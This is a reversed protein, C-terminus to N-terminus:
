EQSKPPEGLPYRRIKGSPTRELEHVIVLERPAEFRPLSAAVLDRLGELSPPDSPDAPVVFAVVRAGWEPDPRAAVAVDAVKPHRRLVAEVARPPVKEGGSIIVDDLRGDVHLLGQRDISGADRTHLWGDETLAHDSPAGRYGRMITPGTLLIESTQPDVRVRTGPFAKGDYVVGGCSETLGYTGVVRGGSAEARARLEPALAAGGVLIRSFRSLDAGVDLLRLLMTPVVSVFRCSTEHAVADPDFGPHAVVPAGLLVARLLVLLGGIHAPTLCSLWPEEPDAELMASSSRVASLVADRDLEVLKPEGTTGSTPVLLALESRDPRAPGAREWGAQADLVVTARGLDVLRRARAPPIRVDVPLLAAGTEWVRAVVTLWEPGPPVIAAVLDGERLRVAEWRAM